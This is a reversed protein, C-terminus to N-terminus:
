QAQTGSTGCIPQRVVIWYTGGMLFFRTAVLSANSHDDHLPVGIRYGPNLYNLFMKLASKLTEM